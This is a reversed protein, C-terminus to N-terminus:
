VRNLREVCIILKTTAGFLLVKRKATGSLSRSFSVVKGEVLLV